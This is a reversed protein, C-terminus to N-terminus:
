LSTQNDLALCVESVSIDGMPKCIVRSKDDRPGWRVPNSGPVNQAYLAVVPKGHMWAIHVPGSDCSVLAKVREHALFASLQKLTLQGTFDVIPLRAGQRIEESLIREAEGGILVVKRGTGQVKDCVQAFRDLGWQKKPNSTGVHIATISEGSPLQTEILKEVHKKANQDVPLVLKGDWRQSSVLGILELNFDIEHKSQGSKADRLAKSLLFGWKRRYGIRKPIGALFTLAHWFKHPNSVVALDFHIKKIKQIVALREAWSKELKVKDIVMVEDLDPHGEFLGSVSQDVLLTIWAKPFTQRLLRIAPLNMLVDGMRDTRIFLIKQVDKKIPM